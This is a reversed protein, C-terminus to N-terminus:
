NSFAEFLGDTALLLAQYSGTEFSCVDPVSSIM